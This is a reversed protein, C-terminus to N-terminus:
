QRGGRLRVLMRRCWLETKDLFAAASRLQSVIMATGVVGLVIGPLFPAFGLLGGLIVLLMGFVIYAVRHATSKSGRGNTRRYYHMFRDGPIGEAIIRYARKARTFINKPGGGLHAMDSKRDLRKVSLPM